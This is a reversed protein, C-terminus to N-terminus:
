QHSREQRQQLEGVPQERGAAEGMGQTELGVDLFPPDMVGAAELLEDRRLELPAGPRGVGDGGNERSAGRADGIQRRQLPEVGADVHRLDDRFRTGCAPLHSALKEPDGCFTRLLYPEAHSMGWWEGERYCQYWYTGICTESAGGNHFFVAKKGPEAWAIINQWERPHFGRKGIAHKVVDTPHKGKLDAPTRISPNVVFTGDLKNILGAIFALDLGSAMAGISTGTASGVHFHTEGGALASMGVQANRVNVVTADIGHKRFIGADRAVFLVGSRENLGGFTFVAKHPASAANLEFPSAMMWLIFVVSVFGARQKM